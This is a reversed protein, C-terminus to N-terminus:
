TGSLEDAGHAFQCSSGLGCFGKEWHRCLQTKEKGPKTGAPKGLEDLSHAFGCATGLQCFGKEIHRCMQTKVLPMGGKGNAAEGKGPGSGKSIVPSSQKAVHYSAGGKGSTNGLLRVPSSEMGPHAFGCQAGLECFGKEWHRCIKSPELGTGKGGGMQKQLVQQPQAIGEEAGAHLFGCAMGLQCFGKEWHRCPVTGKMANSEGMSAVDEAGEHLFGCSMGLQCYGREWHRCPKLGGSVQKQAAEKQAAEAEAQIARSEAESNAHSLECHEGKSCYGRKWDVCPRRGATRILHKAMAMVEESSYGTQVIEAQAVPLMNQAEHAGEHYFGCEMGLQCFGKEWHRCPVTGVKQKKAPPQMPMAAQPVVSPRKGETGLQDAGHAFGCSDGLQCFGKEFHRCLVHRIAM